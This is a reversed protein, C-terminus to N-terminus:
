NNRLAVRTQLPQIAGATTNLTLTIGILRTAPSWSSAAGNYTNYYALTFGSVKDVLVQNDLRLETGVLRVRHNELGGSRQATFTLNSATASGAATITQFEKVMRMMALQGKAATSQSEKAMIFSQSFSIFGMSGMVGLVGLMMMVIIVELLSFGATNHIATWRMM